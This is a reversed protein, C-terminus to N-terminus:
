FIDKIKMFLDKARMILCFQPTKKWMENTVYGIIYKEEFCVNTVYPRWLDGFSLMLM